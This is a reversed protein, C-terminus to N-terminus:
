PYPLVNDFDIWRQGTAAGLPMAKSGDWLATIQLPHGGSLGYLVWKHAFQNDIPLYTGDAHRLIWHNDFRTVFVEELLIPFRSLWPNLALSQGHSAIADNISTGKVAWQEHIETQELLLAKLPSRSPFFALVADIIQGAILGLRSRIELPGIDHFLAVRRSVASYLWTWQEPTRNSRIRRRQGLILWHDRVVPKFEAGEIRLRVGIVDCLDARIEPSLSEFRKFSRVLLYMRGLEALLTQICDGSQTALWSIETLWQALGPMRAAYLRNAMEEWFEYQRIRPEGLGQRILATLWQDLLDFGQKISGIQNLSEPESVQSAPLANTQDFLAPNQQFLQLLAIIHRCPKPNHCLCAKALSNSSLANTEVVVTFAQADHVTGWIREANCGLGIWQEQKVLSQAKSAVTSEPGFGLIRGSHRHSSSARM